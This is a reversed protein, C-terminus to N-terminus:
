TADQKYTATLLAEKEEGTYYFNVLNLARVLGMKVIEWSELWYTDGEETVAAIVAYGMLKRALWIREGGTYYYNFATLNTTAAKIEELRITLAEKLYYTRNMITDSECRNELLLMAMITKPDKFGGEHVELKSREIRALHSATPKEEGVSWWLEKEVINYFLVLTDRIENFIKNLSFPTDILKILYSAPIGEALAAKLEPSASNPFMQVMDLFCTQSQFYNASSSM